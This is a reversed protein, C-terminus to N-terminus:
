AWDETDSEDDDANLSSGQHKANLVQQILSEAKEPEDDVMQLMKLQYNLFNEKKRLSKWM